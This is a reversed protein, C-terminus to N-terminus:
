IIELIDRFFEVSGWITLGIHALDIIILLYYGWDRNLILFIVEYNGFNVIEARLGIKNYVLYILLCLIFAFLYYAASVEIWTQIHIQCKNVYTSTSSLSFTLILSMVLYAAIYLSSVFLM